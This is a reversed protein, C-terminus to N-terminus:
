VELREDSGVLSDNAEQEVGRGSGMGRWQHAFEVKEVDVVEVYMAGAHVQVGEDMVGFAVCRCVVVVGGGGGLDVLVWCAEGAGVGVKDGVGSWRVLLRSM